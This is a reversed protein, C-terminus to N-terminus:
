KRAWTGNELHRVIEGLEMDQFEEGVECTQDEFEVDDTSSELTYDEPPFYEGNGLRLRDKFFSCFVSFFFWGLFVPSSGGAFMQRYDMRLSDVM